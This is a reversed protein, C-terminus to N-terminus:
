GEMRPREQHPQMRRPDSQQEGVTFRVTPDIPGPAFFATIPQGSLAADVQCALAILWCETERAAGRPRQRRGHRGFSSVRSPNAAFTAVRVRANVWVPKKEGTANEPGSAGREKV